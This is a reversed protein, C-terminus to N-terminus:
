LTASGELWNYISKDSVGYTKALLAVSEGAKVKALIEEKVEHAIVPKPM